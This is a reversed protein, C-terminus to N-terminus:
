SGWTWVLHVGRGHREHLPIFEAGRPEVAYGKAGYDGERIVVGAPADDTLSDQDPIAVHDEPEGYIRQDYSAPRRFFTDRLTFKRPVDLKGPLPGRQPATWGAGTDSVCHASPGAWSM